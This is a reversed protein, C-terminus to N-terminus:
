SYIIQPHKISERYTDSLVVENLGRVLEKIELLPLGCEKDVPINQSLSLSSRSTALSNSGCLIKELHNALLNHRQQRL